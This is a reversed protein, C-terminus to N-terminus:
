HSLESELLALAQGVSMSETMAMHFVFTKIRRYGEDTQKRRCVEPWRNTACHRLEHALLEELKQTKTSM